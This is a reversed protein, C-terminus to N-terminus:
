SNWVIEPHGGLRAAQKVRLFDKWSGSRPKRIKSAKVEPENVLPKTLTEHGM